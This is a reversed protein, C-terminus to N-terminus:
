KLLDASSVYLPNVRQHYCAYPQLDDVLVSEPPPAELPPAEPSSRCVSRWCRRLATLHNRSVYLAGLTALVTVASLLLVVWLGRGAERGSDAPRMTVERELSPHAVVCRVGEWGAGDGPLELTSRVTVSAGPPGQTTTTNATLNGTNRWSLTAAPKGDEAVCLAVRSSGAWELWASVRPAVSLVLSINRYDGMGLYSAECQYLGEHRPSFHPILLYPQGSSTNLLAVGGKCTNRNDGEDNQQIECPSHGAAIRWIVYFLESWTKNSCTLSVNAGQLEMVVEHRSEEMSLAGSVLLLTVVRLICLTCLLAPVVGREPHSAM